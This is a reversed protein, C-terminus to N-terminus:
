FCIRGPRLPVALDSTLARCICGGMIEGVQFGEMTPMQNDIGVEGAENEIIVVRQRRNILYGALRKILTTKGSGLFGGLLIIDM